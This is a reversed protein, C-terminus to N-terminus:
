TKSFMTIGTVFVFRIHKQSSKLISYVDRLHDRNIRAKDSDELLDLVPKDYEDVLVVAQRGTKQHLFYLVNELRDAASHVSPLSKLAFAQEIKYLQNAIRNEQEEPTSVIGDLTLRVVPHRVSWDWHPHIDLGRFLSDNGEFLEQLTDVLLSKGFRRPRSLFYYRGEDTMQRILSTKDVYYCGENRLNSFSQYGIPLPCREKQIAANM